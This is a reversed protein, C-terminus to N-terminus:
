DAPAARIAALVADPGGFARLLAVQHHYDRTSAILGDVVRFVQINPARFPRGDPAVGTYDFEAIVVEPDGTTHLVLNEVHFRFPGDQAAAFQAHLAPRGSIVRERPLHMPTVSVADPAYLDALRTWHGADITALFGRVVDAPSPTSRSSHDGSDTGASM